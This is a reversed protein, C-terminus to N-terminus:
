KSTIETLDYEMISQKECLVDYCYIAAVKSSDPSWVVDRYRGEAFYILNEDIPSFLWLGNQESIGRRGKFVLWDGNPSWGLRGPHYMSRLVISYTLDKPNLLVLDFGGDARSQGKRGIVDFSAWFAITKGDPSWAPSFAIGYKSYDPFDPYAAALSWSQKGDSLTLEMPETGQRSIWYLTGALGDYIDMVGRSMDPNWSYNKSLTTTLPGPIIQQTKQSDWDYALLYDADQRPYDQGCQKYVGMRGDPLLRAPYYRTFVMCDPDSTFPLYHLEREGEIAFRVQQPSPQYIDITFAVPGKSPLWILSEYKAAPFNLEKSTVEKTKDVTLLSELGCSSTVLFIFCVM